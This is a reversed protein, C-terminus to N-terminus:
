NCPLVIHKNLADEVEKQSIGIYRQTIAVSSHQLLQRVLEINYNNEVYITQAFFKRFSHTSIGELGLFDCAKQLHAQIARVSLDFLRKDPTLKQKIVYNQLFIYIDTPVTFTRRKGTKQEVIDLHYRGNELIIDKLKLKVIDSIRLGLNAEVVLATAIRENPYFRHGELIFGSRITDIIMKLQAKSLALTKKGAM